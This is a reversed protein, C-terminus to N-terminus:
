MKTQDYLVPYHDSMLIHETNQYRYKEVDPIGYEGKISHQSDFIYDGTFQYDTDTCCTHPSLGPQYLKFNLLKISKLPSFYADNFDGMLIIRNLKVYDPIIVKSFTNTIETKLDVNHPAHLNIVLLGVKPFYVVLLSRGKEESIFLQDESLAYGEGFIEEKYLIYARSNNLFKYQSPFLESTYKSVVEQLGILDANLNELFERVNLTSQSVNKKSSSWGKHKSYAKQAIEVMRKESGQVENYQMNYALNFTLIKLNLHHVYSFQYFQVESDFKLEMENIINQPPKLITNIAKTENNTIKIYNNKRTIFCQKENRFIVYNSNELSVDGNLLIGYGIILINM